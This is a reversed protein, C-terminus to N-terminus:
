GPPQFRGAPMPTHRTAARPQAQMGLSPHKAPPDLARSSRAKLKNMEHELDLVRKSWDQHSFVCSQRSLRELESLRQELGKREHYRVLHLGELMGVDRWLLRVESWLSSMRAEHDSEMFAVRSELEDIRKRQRSKGTPIGNARLIARKAGQKRHCRGNRSSRGSSISVVNPSKGHEM